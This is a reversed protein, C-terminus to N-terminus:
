GDGLVAVPLRDSGRLALAAGIAMGPGSGIGGGGDFGIYDRPHAFRCYEGPWGLPLRIYSPNHRALTETAVRALDDLPMCNELPPQASASASAADAPKVFWPRAASGARPGLKALLEAVLRDPAALMTLDTPPLAQYDMNWGRHVYQDLSCQVVKAGPSEGGCAQRLTGGLDIWDLSVIVDADRLAQTADGSVYLSPPFPHLPHRTPFSAGTKIDTLALAGVREALAVRREFDSADNSVRGIMLLPRKAVRLWQAVATVADDPPAATTPMPFRDLAPMPEPAALPEEQLGADLGVYVPGQPPTQAIRWGRLISELAAKVSGPQNDWKTYDRVLAAMDSTAHIGVALPRGTVRAYGHALAVANEEHVCLLMEPRTNGLYNVLSDHLGRYSAGPTLAIYPIELTRLLEAMADSGWAATRAIPEGTPAHKVDTIPNDNM